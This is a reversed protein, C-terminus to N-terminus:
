NKNMWGLSKPTMEKLLEKNTVEGSRDSRWWYEYMVEPIFVESKLFPRLQEAYITDERFNISMFGVKRAIETRVPTVHYPFRLYM